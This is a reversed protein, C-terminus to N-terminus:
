VLYKPEFGVSIHKDKAENHLKFPSKLDSKYGEKPYSGFSTKGGNVVDDGKCQSTFYPDVQADVKDGNPEVLGM